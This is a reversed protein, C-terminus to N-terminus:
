PKKLRRDKGAIAADNGCPEGVRFSAAGRGDEVRSLLKASGIKAGIKPPRMWLAPQRLQKQNMPASPATKVITQNAVDVADLLMRANRLCFDFDDLAAAAQHVGVGGSGDFLVREGPRRHFHEQAIAHQHADVDALVADGREGPKKEGPKREVQRLRAVHRHDLDSERGGYGPKAAANPPTRPPTMESQSSRRPWESLKARLSGM